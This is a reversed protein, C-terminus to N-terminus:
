CRPNMPSMKLLPLCRRESILSMRSRDLTSAPFIVSSRSGTCTDISNALLRDIMLSFAAARSMRRVISAGSSSPVIRLSARLTLCITYLRSDFATLNVLSRPSTVNRALRTGRDSTLWTDSDESPRLKGNASLSNLSNRLILTVSVPM